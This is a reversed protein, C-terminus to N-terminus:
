YNDDLPGREGPTVIESEDLPRLLNLERLRREQYFERPDVPSALTALEGQVLKLNAELVTREQTRLRAMCQAPSAPSPSGPDASLAEDRAATSVANMRELNSRCFSALYEFVKVENQKSFPQGLTYFVTDAFCAELIFCDKGELLKLRLFQLLAPDLGGQAATDAELDFRRSGSAYGARELVDRKDDPYKEDGDIACTIECCADELILNPVVGHDELCEASSKLGYSMVVAEGVGYSREARVNVVKGGFIGASDTAPDATSLPDFAIYDLGPVLMPAGDLFLARSRVHGMAWRWALEDAVLASVVSTWDADVADLQARVNRTTSSLLETVETNTWGLMGPPTEPLSRVYAAYKSQDGLAKESLLQLALMGYMGTRLRNVTTTITTTTGTTTGTMCVGLPVAHLVEGKKVATAATAFFPSGNDAQLVTIRSEKTGHAAVWANVEQTLAHVTTTTSRPLRVVRTPRYAQHGLLVGCFVMLLLLHSAM